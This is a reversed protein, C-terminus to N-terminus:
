VIHTACIVKIRLAIPIISYIERTRMTLRELYTYTRQIIEVSNEPILELQTM